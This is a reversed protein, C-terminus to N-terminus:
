LRPFLKCGGGGSWWEGANRVVRVGRRQSGRYPKIVLPGNDLLPVLTKEDTTVFAEPSPVGAADLIHSTMIKDRLTEAVSYPNLIKAGAVHLVGALRLALETGSKLVYLDHEVRIQALNTLQEEPYIADIEVGWETLLRMVEPMIPSHRTAPHRTLIFAIRM